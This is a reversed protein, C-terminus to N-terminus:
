DLEDSSDVIKLDFPFGEYTQVLEALQDFTLFIGDVVVGRYAVRGRLRDHTLSLRKDEKLLHRVSLLKSIKTRLLALAHFADLPSFARFEYGDDGEVDEVAYIGYGWPVDHQRVTFTRTRGAFDVLEEKRPFHGQQPSGNNKSIDRV